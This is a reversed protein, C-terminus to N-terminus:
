RWEPHRVVTTGGLYGVNSHIGGGDYGEFSRIEILRVKLPDTQALRELGQDMLLLTEDPQRGRDALL